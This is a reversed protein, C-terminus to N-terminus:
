QLKGEELKAASPESATRGRGRLMLSAIRIESQLTQGRKSLLGMSVVGPLSVVLGVNTATLAISIGSSLAKPDSTSGSMMASFTAIMGTVTGMLGMLPAARALTSLLSMGREIALAEELEAQEIELLRIRGGPRGKAELARQLFRTYPTRYRACAEALRFRRDDRDEEVLEQLARVVERQDRAVSRRIKPIFSLFARSDYLYGLRDATLIGIGACTAIMPVMVPLTGQEILTILRQFLGIM